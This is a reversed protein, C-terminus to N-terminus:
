SVPYGMLDALKKIKLQYEYDIFQLQCSGCVKQMPCLPKIRYKSPTIIETIEGYAYNKNVKTVKLKVEDQPCGNEIFIVLGDVRAIASGTNAIKEIHATIEDNVKM